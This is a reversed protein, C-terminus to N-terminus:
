LRIGTVGAIIRFSYDQWRHRVSILVSERLTIKIDNTFLRVEFVNLINPM